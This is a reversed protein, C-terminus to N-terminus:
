HVTDLAIDISLYTILREIQRWRCFHIHNGLSRNREAEAAAALAAAEGHDALLRAADAVSARDALFLVPPM